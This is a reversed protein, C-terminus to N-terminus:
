GDAVHTTIRLTDYGNNPFTIRSAGNIVEYEMRHERTTGSLPLLPTPVLGGSDWDTALWTYRVVGDTATGFIIM